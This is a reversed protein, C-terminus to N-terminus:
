NKFHSRHNCRIDQMYTDSAQFKDVAHTTLPITAIIISLIFRALALVSPYDFIITPPLEIGYTSTLKNRIEVAGAILFACTLVLHLSHYFRAEVRVLLPSYSYM